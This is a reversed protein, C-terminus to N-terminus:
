RHRNMTPGYFDFNRTQELPSSSRLACHFPNNMNKPVVNIM